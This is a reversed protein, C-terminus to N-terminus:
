TRATRLHSERRLRQALQVLCALVSVYLQTHRRGSMALNGRYKSDTRRSGLEGLASSVRRGWVGGGGAPGARSMRGAPRAAGGGGRALRRGPAPGSRGASFSVSISGLWEKEAQVGVSVRTEPGPRRRAARAAARGRRGRGRRGRRGGALGARGGGPWGAGRGGRGWAALRAARTAARGRRGGRGGPGGAGALGALGGGPRRNAEALRVIVTPGGCSGPGARGARREGSRREMYICSIYSFSMYNILNLTFNMYFDHLINAFINVGHKYMFYIFVEHLLNLEIYDSTFNM